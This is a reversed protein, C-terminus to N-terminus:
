LEAALLLSRHSGKASKMHSHNYNSPSKQLVKGGHHVDRLLNVRKIEKRQSKFQWLGATEFIALFSLKLKQINWNWDIFIHLIDTWTKPVSRFSLILGHKVCQTKQKHILKNVFFNQFVFWVRQQRVCCSLQMKSKIFDVQKQHLKNLIFLFEDECTVPQPRHHKHLYMFWFIVLNLSWNM